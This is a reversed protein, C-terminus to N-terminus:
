YRFDNSGWHFIKMLDGVYIVVKIKCNGVERSQDSM